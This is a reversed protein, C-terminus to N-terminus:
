PAAAADPRFEAPLSNGPAEKPWINANVIWWRTGDWFMEVSDVSRGLLPGNPTRRAESTSFVHVVNGFRHTVRHVEREYFWKAVADGDSADVFEQHTLMTASVKGKRDAEIIVFRIGPVYLTRDRAWQRPDGAPGSIVEYYAKMIGDITSVDAPRAAIAPVAVHHASQGTSSIALAVVLVAGGAFRFAAFM